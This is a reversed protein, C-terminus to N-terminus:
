RDSKMSFGCLKLKVPISAVFDAPMASTKLGNLINSLHQNDCVTLWTTVTDSLGTTDIDADQWFIIAASILQPQVGLLKNLGKTVRSKNLRIQDFPTKARTGGEIIM